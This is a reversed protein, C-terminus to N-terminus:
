PLHVWLPDGILTGHNAHFSRDHAIAGSGEDFSWYGALGSELAAEDGNMLGQIQAESLAVSWIGLEDIVGNWYETTLPFDVGIYLPSDNTCLSGTLDAAGDLTGNRYFRLHAGDFIVAVFQWSGLPIVTDSEPLPTSLAACGSFRLHGYETKYVPDLPGSQQIAYNNVNPKDGKTVISAWETYNQLYIWAAVTFSDSLDLSPDDEVVVYDDKGDFYLAYGGGPPGMPQLTATPAVPSIAAGTATLVPPAPVSSLSCGAGLLLMALSVLVKRKMSNLLITSRTVILIWENSMEQRPTRLFSLRIRAIM